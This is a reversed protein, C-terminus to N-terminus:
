WIGLLSFDLDEHNLHLKDRVMTFFEEYSIRGSRDTDVEKFVKYWTGLEGALNNPNSSKTLQQNLQVALSLVVSEPAPVAHMLEVTLSKGVLDDMEKRIATVM